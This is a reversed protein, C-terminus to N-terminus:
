AVEKCFTIEVTYHKAGLIETEEICVVASYAVTQL